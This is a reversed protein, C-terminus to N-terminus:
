EATCRDFWHRKWAGSHDLENDTRAHRLEATAPLRIQEARLSARWGHWRAQRVEREDYRRHVYKRIAQDESLFLYHKMRFPQPSLRPPLGSLRVRHGGSWAIEMPGPRKKFARVCHPSRPEFPYYSRLTTQFAAHDHNPAELTPIFTFESFEVASYGRGDADAIAEALTPFSPPPLHIEDADVHMLWDADLSQFLEEKHQLLQTWRFIGEHPISELECVGRGRFSEVIEVTRDTSGNDCVHVKVGQRLLNELCGAVFREENRVTLVAVVRM